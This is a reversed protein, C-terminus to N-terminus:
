KWQPYLYVFGRIPQQCIWCETLSYQCVNCVATHTCPLTMISRTNTDCVVCTTIKKLWYNEFELRKIQDDESENELISPSLVDILVPKRIIPLRAVTLLEKVDVQVAKDVYKTPKEKTSNGVQEIGKTTM